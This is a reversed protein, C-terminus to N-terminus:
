PDLRLITDFQGGAYLRGEFLAFSTVGAAPIAEGARMLRVENWTQGGDLSRYVATPTAAVVTQGQAWVANVRAFGNWPPLMQWSGDRCDVRGVGHSFTGVYAYGDSTVLLDELQEPVPAATETWHEGGDASCFLRGGRVVAALFAGSGSVVDIRPAQPSDGLRLQGIEDLGGDHVRFLGERTAVLLDEGQSELDRVWRHELQDIHRWELGNDSEFLGKRGFAGYIKQGQAALGFIRDYPLRGLEQFHQGDQSALLVQRGSTVLLRGQYSRVLTTPGQIDIVERFYPQAAAPMVLWLWLVIGRLWNARM